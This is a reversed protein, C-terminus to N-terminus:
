GVEEGGSSGFTSLIIDCYETNKGKVLRCQRKTVQRTVTIKVTNITAAPKKVPYVKANKDRAALKAKLTPVRLLSNETNGILLVSPTRLKGSIIFGESHIQAVLNGGNDVSVESVNFLCPLGLFRSLSIGTLRSGCIGGQIGCLILQADKAGSLHNAIIQGRDIPVYRLAPVHDDQELCIREVSDYGLAFLREYLRSDDFNELTIARLRCPRGKDALLNRIRLAMELASEDYQDFVRGFYGDLCIEPDTSWNEDKAFSMDQVARFCVIIEM